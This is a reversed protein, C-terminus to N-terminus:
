VIAHGLRGFDTRRPQGRGPLNVHIRSSVENSDADNRCFSARSKASNYIHQDSRLSHNTEHYPSTPKAVFAHDKLSIKLQEGFVRKNGPRM